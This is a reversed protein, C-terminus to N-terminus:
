ASGITFKFSQSYTEGRTLMIGGVNDNGHQALNFGDIAHSVPEVCFCDQEAPAWMLLHSLSPNTTIEVSMNQSPWRIKAGGDWGSYASMDKLNKSPYGSLFGAADPNKRFNVPLSEEDLVWENPIDATISAESRNQFYPHLGLGVPFTTPGLNSVALTIELAAPTLIFTQQAGFLIPLDHDPELNLIASNPTVDLVDWSAGWGTGHCRHPDPNSSNPIKVKQNDAFFEGDRIRNSYPVLPFCGMELVQKRNYDLSKLPRFIDIIGQHTHKTFSAISGGIEPAISIQLQGAQLKLLKIQRPDGV